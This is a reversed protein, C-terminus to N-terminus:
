EWDIKLVTLNNIRFKCVGETFLDDRDPSRGQQSGKDGDGNDEEHLNTDLRKPVDVISNDAQEVRQYRGCYKLHKQFPKNSTKTWVKEGDAPRIDERSLHSAVSVSLDHVISLNARSIVLL